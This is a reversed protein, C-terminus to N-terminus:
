DRESTEPDSELVAHLGDCRACCAYVKGPLSCEAARVATMTKCAPCYANRGEVLTFVVRRCAECELAIGLSPVGSVLHSVRLRRLARCAPCRRHTFGLM